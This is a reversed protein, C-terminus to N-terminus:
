KSHGTLYEGILPALTDTEKLFADHGFISDITEVRCCGGWREAMAQMQCPPVIQDQGIGILLAPNMIGSVDVRQRDISASLSLFRGPSMRGLFASGRSALYDGPQSSALPDSSSIGGEFRQRFEEPSRYGMMALGRAIALADGSCNHSMGLDVIRRQLSRVATAAGHPRDDACIISLLIGPREAREAWALAVMGGYSAGIIAFPADVNFARLAADIIRSQIAPSPAYRGSDDAAFDIGVICYGALKRDPTFLDWWGSRGHGPVVDADASIGGLAVIVPAGEPGTMTARVERPLHREADRDDWDVPADIQTSPLAALSSLM